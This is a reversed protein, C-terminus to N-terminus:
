GAPKADTEAANDLVLVWDHDVGQSPAIFTQPGVSAYTGAPRLTGERPDFWSAAVRPGQLRDLAVTVPQGQAVYVFAYGGDAAGTAPAELGRIGDGEAVLGDLPVRAFYPRSEVLGRLHRMQSAGPLALGERWSMRPDWRWSKEHGPLAMQYVPNAGYTHGCAGSFVALYAKRRVDWATLRDEPAVADYATRKGGGTLGEPIGEYGAEGDIVPKPPTQRYADGLLKVQKTVQPRYRTHGSQACNFDLWPERHLWISSSAGGRPHYTMLQTGGHGALLGEALARWVEVRDGPNQDGGLLWIVQRERYRRGLWEGYARAPGATLRPPIDTVHNGWAPLLAAWLGLENAAGVVEDVQAFYRPNPSAFDFPNGIRDFPRSPDFPLLGTQGATNQTGIGGSLVVMQIVNFGKGARDTLYDRSEAPNLHYLLAWATDALYFFPSGDAHTLFHGDDSVRLRDAATVAPGLLSLGLLALGLRAHM